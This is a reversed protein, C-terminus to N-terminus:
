EYRLAQIPELTSAKQAPWLGFVVGVLASFSFAVVITMPKVAVAWGAFRGMALSAGGGLAM